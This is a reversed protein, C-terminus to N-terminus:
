FIVKLMFKAFFFRIKNIRDTFRLNFLLSLNLEMEVEHFRKNFFKIKEFMDLRMSLKEVYDAVQHTKYEIKTHM